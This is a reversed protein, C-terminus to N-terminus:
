EGWWTFTFPVVALVLWSSVFVAVSFYVQFVVPDINAEVVRKSKIPVAFLGWAVISGLVALYGYLLHNEVEGASSAGSDWSSDSDAM